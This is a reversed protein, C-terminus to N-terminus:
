FLPTAKPLNKKDTLLPVSRLADGCLRESYSLDSENLKERSVVQINLSKREIPGRRLLDSNPNEGGKLTKGRFLTQILPVDKTHIRVITKPGYKSFIKNLAILDNELNKRENAFGKLDNGYASMLESLSIANAKDRPLRQYLIFLRESKNYSAIPHTPM